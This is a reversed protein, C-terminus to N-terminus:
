DHDIDTVTIGDRTITVAVHDGFMDQMPERMDSDQILRSFEELEKLIDARVKTKLCWVEESWVETEEGDYYGFATISDIDKANSFYPDHVSFTCPDGDNFYPTYQTWRIVTIPSDDTLISQVYQSFIEKIQRAFERKHEKYRELFEQIEKM